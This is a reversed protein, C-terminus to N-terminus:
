LTPSRLSRSLSSEGLWESSLIISNQSTETCPIFAAPRAKGPQSHACYLHPLYQPDDEDRWVKWLLRDLEDACVPTCVDLSDATESATMSESHKGNVGLVKAYMDLAVWYWEDVLVPQEGNWEAECTCRWRHVLEAFMKEATQFHGAFVLANAYDWLVERWLTDIFVDDENDSLSAFTDDHHVTDPNDMSLFSLVDSLIRHQLNYDKQIYPHRSLPRAVETFRSATSRSPCDSFCLAANRVCQELVNYSEEIRGAQILADTYQKIIGDRSSSDPAANIAAVYQVLAEEKHFMELLLQAYSAHLAPLGGYGGLVEESLDERCRSNCLCSQAAQIAQLWVGLAEVKRESHTLHQALQKLERTLNCVCSEPYDHLIRRETEIGVLYASRVVESLGEIDDYGHWFELSCLQRHRSVFDPQQRWETIVALAQMALSRREADSGESAYLFYEKTKLMESRALSLSRCSGTLFVGIESLAGLLSMPLNADIESFAAEM